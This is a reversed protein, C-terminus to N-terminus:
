RFAATKAGEAVCRRLRPLADATGGLSFSLGLREAIVRLYQGARPAAQLAEDQGVDIALLSPTEAVGIVQIPPARDITLTAVHDSGPPLRWDQTEIEIRFDGQPGLVFGLTVPGYGHWVSCHSFRRAVPDVFSGGDWGGVEFPQVPELAGAAAAGLAIWGALLAGPWIRTSGEISEDPRAHPM